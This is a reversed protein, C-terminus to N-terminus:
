VLHTFQALLQTQLHAYLVTLTLSLRMLVDDRFHNLLMRIPENQVLVSLMSPNGSVQGRETGCNRFHPAIVLLQNLLEDAVPSKIAAFQVVNIGNGSAVVRRMVM